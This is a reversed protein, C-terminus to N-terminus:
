KIVEDRMTDEIRASQALFCNILDFGPACRENDSCITTTRIEFLHCIRFIKAYINDNSIMVLGRLLNRLSVRHKIWPSCVACIIFAVETAYANCKLQSLCEIM